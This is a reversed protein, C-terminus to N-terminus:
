KEDRRPKPRKGVSVKVAIENKERTVKLTAVTGPKLASILNLTGVALAAFGCTLVLGLWLTAVIPVLGHNATM